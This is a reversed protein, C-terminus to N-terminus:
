PKSAEMYELVSLPSGEYDSTLVAVDFAEILERADERMGLFAVTDQLETLGDSALARRRQQGLAVTIARSM